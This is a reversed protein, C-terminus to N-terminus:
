RKSRRSMGAPICACPLRPSAEIGMVGPLVPTGDIRHDYLFPQVKPDLTTEMTLGSYVGMGTIKGIM